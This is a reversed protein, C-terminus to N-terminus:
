KLNIVVIKGNPYPAMVVNMDIRERVSTSIQKLLAPEKGANVMRELRVHLADQSATNFLSAGINLVEQANMAITEPAEGKKVAEAAVPPPIMALAAGVGAVFGIDAGIAFPMTNDDSVYTALVIKPGLTVGQGPNARTVTVARDLLSVLLGRMADVNPLPAGNSM